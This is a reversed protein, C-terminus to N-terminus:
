DGENLLKMYSGTAAMARGDQWGTIAKLASAAYWNDKSYYKEFTSSFFTYKDGHSNWKSLFLELYRSFDTRLVTTLSLYERFLVIVNQFM